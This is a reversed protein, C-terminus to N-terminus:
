AHPDIINLCYIQAKMLLIIITAYGKNNNGPCDNLRLAFIDRRAHMHLCGLVKEKVYQLQFYFVFRIIYFEWVMNEHGTTDLLIATGNCTM